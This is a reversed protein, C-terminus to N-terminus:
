VFTISRVQSLQKIMRTSSILMKDKIELEKWQLINQNNHAMYEKSVKNTLSKGMISQRTFHSKVM